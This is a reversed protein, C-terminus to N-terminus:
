REQIQQVGLEAEGNAVLVEVPGNKPCITKSKMENAIGLRDLEASETANEFV